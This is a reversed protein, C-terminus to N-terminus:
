LHAPKLLACDCRLFCSIFLHRVYDHDTRLPTVFAFAFNDIPKGFTRVHDHAELAAVIGTMREDNVPDAVLEGKQWGPENAALEADDAIADDDIRMMEDGFDFLKAALANRNSRIDQPDGFIRRQNKREM